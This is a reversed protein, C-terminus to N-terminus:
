DFVEQIKKIPYYSQLNKLAKILRVVNKREDISLHYEAATYNKNFESDKDEKDFEPYSKVKICNGTSCIIKIDYFTTYFPKGTLYGFDGSQEYKEFSVDTINFEIVTVVPVSSKSKFSYSDSTYKVKVTGSHLIFIEGKYSSAAHFKLKLFKMTEAKSIKQGNSIKGLFLITFLIAIRIM